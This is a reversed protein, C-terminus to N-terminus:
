EAALGSASLGELLEGGVEDKVRRLGTGLQCTRRVEIVVVEDEAGDV